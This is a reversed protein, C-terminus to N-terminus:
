PITIPITVRCGYMMNDILIVEYSGSPIGSVTTNSASTYCNYVEQTTANMIKAFEVDPFTITNNSVTISGQYGHLNIQLREKCIDPDNNISIVEYRNISDNPLLTISNGIITDYDWNTTGNVMTRSRYVITDNPTANYITWEYSSGRCIHDHKIYYSQCIGDIIIGFVLVLFVIVKKM